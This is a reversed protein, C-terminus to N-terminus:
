QNFRERSYIGPQAHDGEAFSYNVFQINEAETFLFTATSLYVGAGTTGMKQTLHESNEITIYLTTPTITDMQMRMPLDQNRINFYEVLYEPEYSSLEISPNLMPLDTQMDYTWREVPKVEKKGLYRATVRNTRPDSAVYEVKLLDGVEYVDYRRKADVTGHFVAGDVTFEYTVAQKYAGGGRHVYKFEIVDGTAVGVTRGMFKWEGSVFAYTLFSALALIFASLVFPNKLVKIVPHNSRIDEPSQPNQFSPKLIIAPKPDHFISFNLIYLGVTNKIKAVMILVNRIAATAIRQM